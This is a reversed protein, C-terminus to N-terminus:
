GQNRRFRPNELDIQPNLFDAVRKDQPNKLSDPTGVHILQGGM